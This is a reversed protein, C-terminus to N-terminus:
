NKRTIRKATKKKTQEKEKDKEKDQQTIETSEQKEKEKEQKVEKVVDKNEQVSSDKSKDINTEPLTTFPSVETLKSELETESSHESDTGSSSTESSNLGSSENDSEAELAKGNDEPKEKEKPPESKQEDEKKAKKNDHHGTVNQNEGENEVPETMEYFYAGPGHNTFSQIVLDTGITIGWILNNLPDICARSLRINNHFKIDKVDELFSGDSLNYVRAVYKDTNSWPQLHPPILVVFQHGSCYFLCSAFMNENSETALMPSSQCVIYRALPAVKHLMGPQERNASFWNIAKSENDNGLALAKYCIYPDYLYRSKKSLAYAQVIRGQLKTVNEPSTKPCPEGLPFILSQFM